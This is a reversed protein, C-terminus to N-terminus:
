SACVLLWSYFGDQEPALVAVARNGGYARVIDRVDPTNYNVRQGHLAWSQSAATMKAWMAAQAAPDPNEMTSVYSIRTTVFQDSPCPATTTPAKRGAGAPGALVAMGAVALGVAVAVIWPVGIHLRVRV